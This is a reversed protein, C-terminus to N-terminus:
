YTLFINFLDQKSLIPPICKFSEPDSADYCFVLGDVALAGEPFINNDNTLDLSLVDVELVRLVCDGSVYPRTM